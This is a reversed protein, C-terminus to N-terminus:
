IYVKEINDNNTLVASSTGSTNFIVQYYNETEM